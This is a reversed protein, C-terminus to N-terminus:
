DVYGVPDTERLSSVAEVEIVADAALLELARRITAERDGLNSGLGIYVLPM